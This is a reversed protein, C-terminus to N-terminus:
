DYWRWTQVKEGIGQPAFAIKGTDRGDRMDALMVRMRGLRKSKEPGDEASIRYVGIVDEFYRSDRVLSSAYGVV